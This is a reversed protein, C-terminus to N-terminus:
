AGLPVARIKLHLHIIDNVVHKGLFRFFRGSGYVSGFETRDLDLVAQGSLSGDDAAAIVAPFSVPRAVGALSLVGEMVHNPRGETVDNLPRCAAARFEALPHAAINFFDASALHDVLLRNLAPEAIDECAITDMAMRFLASELVGGRVVLEGGALRLTGSHHNFLNRGTWRIVSAETDVAYAGDVERSAGPISGHGELALGAARWGELGEGYVQVDAYGAERLAAAAVEAERSAGGAGYVVVAASPDPLLRRVADHFAVEYVCANVSGPIRAAEFVEPPLVHLLLPPLPGGLAAQLSATNM